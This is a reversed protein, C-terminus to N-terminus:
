DRITPNRRGLYLVNNLAKGMRFALPKRAGEHSQAHTARPVFCWGLLLLFIVSFVADGFGFFREPRIIYHILLGIGVLVFIVIGPIWRILWHFENPDHDIQM